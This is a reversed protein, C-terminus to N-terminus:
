SLRTLSGFAPWGYAVEAVVTGAIDTDQTGCVQGGLAEYFRRAALNDRFVWLAAGGGGVTSALTAMLQRGYGHRQARALLYITAIETEFGQAALAQHRQPCASAFGVIEGAMRAVFTGRDFPGDIIGRWRNARESIDLSALFDAPLVCAYTERWATVHVAAIEDADDASARDVSM